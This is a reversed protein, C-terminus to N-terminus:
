LNEVFKSYLWKARINFHRLFEVYTQVGTRVTAAPIYKYPERVSIGM